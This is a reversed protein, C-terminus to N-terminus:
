IKTDSQNKKGVLKKFKDTLRTLKESEKLASKMILSNMERLEAIIKDKRKLEEDYVSKIRKFEEELEEKSKMM